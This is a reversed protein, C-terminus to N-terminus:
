RPPVSFAAQQELAEGEDLEDLADHSAPNRIAAYCGAASAVM